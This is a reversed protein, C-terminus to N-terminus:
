RVKTDGTQGSAYRTRLNDIIDQRSYKVHAAIEDILISLFLDSKLREDIPDFDPKAPELWYRGNWIADAHEPAFKAIGTESPQKGGDEGLSNFKGTALDYFAVIPKGKIEKFATM